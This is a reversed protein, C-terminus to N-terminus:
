VGENRLSKLKDVIVEEACEESVLAADAEKKTVVLDRFAVAIGGSDYRILYEGSDNLVKCWGYDVLTIEGEIGSM